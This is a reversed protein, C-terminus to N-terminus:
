KIDKSAVLGSQIISEKLSEDDAAGEPVLMIDYYTMPMEYKELAAKIERLTNQLDEETPIEPWWAQTVFRTPVKQLISPDFDGDLPLYEKYKELDDYDRPYCLDIEAKDSDIGYVPMLELDPLEKQLIFMAQKAAERGMRNCTNRGSEVFLEHSPHGDESFFDSTDTWHRTVVDFYTDRSQQSQVTARYEFPSDYLVQTVTFTQGPYLEQAYAVAQRGAHAESFPDGNGGEYFALLGLIIAFGLIGAVIRKTKKM